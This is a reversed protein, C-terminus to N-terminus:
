TGYNYGPKPTLVFGGRHDFADRDYVSCFTRHQRDGFADDYLVVGKIYFVADGSRVEEVRQPTLETFAVKEGRRENPDLVCYTEMEDAPIQTSTAPPLMSAIAAEIKLQKVVVKTKGWNRLTFPIEIYRLSEAQTRPLTVPTDFDVAIVGRGGGGLDKRVPSDTVIAKGDTIARVSHATHPPVIAVLGPRAVITDGGVTVELEGELVTWVEEAPHAHEHIRAGATFDYHAFTMKETSFSHDKWGPLREGQPLTHTDILPM